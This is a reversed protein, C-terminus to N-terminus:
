SGPRRDTRDEQSQRQPRWHQRGGSVQQQSGRRRRYTGEARRAGLAAQGMPPPPNDVVVLKSRFREPFEEAPAEVAKPPPSRGPVPPPPVEFETTDRNRRAPQHRRDPCSSSRRRRNPEPETEGERVFSPPRVDHHHVGRRRRTDGAPPQEALFVLCLGAGGALLLVAGGTLQKRRARKDSVDVEDGALMGRTRSVAEDTEAGDGRKRRITRSRGSSQRIRRALIRSGCISSASGNTATACRSSPRRETSSSTNGKGASTASRKPSIRRQGRLDGARTPRIQLLDEQRRRLGDVAEAACRGFVFLRHQRQGQRHRLYKAMAARQEAEKRLAANLNKEPYHFRIGFVKRGAEPAIDHLELYYIRKDTVVNMNTMVDKAIPKVFLINGKEAPVVQWSETDGLSITEFKEDEDFIIMTSIGYTAFVQVVNNEQYTVSTVRPMSRAARPTQAAHGHWLIRNSALAAARLLSTEDRRGPTVTEQDRRYSYVQFGLPNEFRWENRLPTPTASVCSLSGIASSRNRTAARQDLVQRDGTSTNPFTVSKIEIASGSSGGMSEQPTRRIPPATSTRCSARRTTRPCCHRLALIRSIAYPDYGERARIYRVVNAQTIAQQETLNTPRTLGSKVEIIAPTRTSPSSM